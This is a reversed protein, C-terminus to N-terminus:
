PAPCAPAGSLTVTASADVTLTASGDDDDVSGEVTNEHATCDVTEVFTCSYSDGPDGNPELTQPVSCDGKGNLDGFQDDVLQSLELAEATSDNTVTVVYTVEASEAIKSISAAPAVNNFNVTADDSESLSVGDDDTGEATVTNVHPTAPGGEIDASFTCSYQGGPAGGPALEQPVSCNGQGNLDGFVDDMLSDITVADVSSTNDITVTYTANGGPEDLSTPNVDKTVVIMSPINTIMVSASDSAMANNGEDDQATVTAVDTITAGPAGSVATTFTCTVSEGDNLVHNLISDDNVGGGDLDALCSGIISEPGGGDVDDTLATITLPDSSESDHTIVVTFTVDGGPEAVTEPNASKTLLISPLVDDINVTASDSGSLENAREDVGTATVTDTITDGGNGSVNVVFQCQYPAAGAALVESANCTSSVIPASTFGMDINGYIDDVLSSLAVDNTPDIGTNQVTVTFTVLGGPEDLATPLATKTVALMAPPVPVPVQFGDDCNCKSPSGPYADLPGACLNNAGGQRWSTCNPLNLFGDGDPDVCAVNTLTVTPNLPNSVKNIDGCADDAQGSVDEDLDVFNDTDSPDITSITCEGTKAGDMNTDGDTAFYLGIDFREKSTTVVDFTATFTATDGPFDCPDTIDIDDELEGFENERQAIGAIRVDNATCTLGNSATVDGGALGAALEAMCFDSELTAASAVPVLGVCAFALAGLCAPSGFWIRRLM